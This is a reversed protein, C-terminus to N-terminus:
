LVYTKKLSLFRKRTGTQPSIGTLEVFGYSIYSHFLAYHFSTLAHLPVHYRLKFLIGNIRSLTKSLNEIQKDWSFTEDIETGLYTVSKVSELVFDFKLTPSM